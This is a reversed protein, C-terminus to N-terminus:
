CRTLAKGKKAAQKLATAILDDGQTAAAIGRMIMNGATEAPNKGVYGTKSFRELTAYIEASIAVTVPETKVLNKGKPV